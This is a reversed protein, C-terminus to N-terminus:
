ILWSVDLNKKSNSLRPINMFANVCVHVYVFKCLLFIYYGRLRLSYSNKVLSSCPKKLFFILQHYFNFCFCCCCFWLFSLLLFGSGISASFAFPFKCLVSSEYQLLFSILNGAFELHNGSTDNFLLNDDSNLYVFGIKTQYGQFM